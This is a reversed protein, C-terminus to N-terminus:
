KCLKDAEELVKGLDHHLKRAKVLSIWQYAGGTDNEICVDNDDESYTVKGCVIKKSIVLESPPQEKKDFLSM